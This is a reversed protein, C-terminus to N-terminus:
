TFNLLSSPFRPRVKAVSIANRDFLPTVPFNLERERDGQRYFEECARYSWLRSINWTRCPNSIDACKLAIQLMFHRHLDRSMDMNGAELFQGLRQLFDAQRSIDTALIMAQILGQLETLDQSALCAALGAERMLAVCTRWHHNELVSSNNYLGALHSSTTVLFKENLGPHDVDHAVAAILAAMKELPRLHQRFISEQIFCAMAQTVDAAHVGNHYPNTRHYHQEVSSFFKWVLLSDLRFHRCLGLDQFLYTCLTALNQGETLRDFSFANFDWNTNIHTLIHQASVHNYDLLDRRSWLTMLSKARKRQRPYTTCSHPILQRSNDNSASDNDDNLQLELLQLEHDHDVAGEISPLRGILQIM